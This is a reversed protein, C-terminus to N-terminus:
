AFGQVATTRREFIGAWGARRYRVELSHNNPMRLVLGDGPAVQVGSWSDKVALVEGGGADSDLVADFPEDTLDSPTLLKWVLHEGVITGFGTFRIRLIQVPLPSQNPLM